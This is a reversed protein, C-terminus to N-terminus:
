AAHPVNWMHPHDGPTVCHGGETKCGYGNGWSEGYVDPDSTIEVGHFTSDMLRGIERVLEEADAADAQAVLEDHVPLLIHDSLGADDIDVLAKALLDRATSQVVYNTAAYARDRDLPLHRGFPTVVEHGGYEASRQLRRGYAKIGPFTADYADAAAKAEAYTIGTQKALTAAGGGYVKGFGVAKFLKRARKKQADTMTSWKAGMVLRATFLHLDEGSAIAAILAPDGSLAALVRMEVQSYDCAVILKGPDAIIARRIKWDGSPLQQLPPNSVSMRATRAALSSVNPHIRDDEDRLELFAQAYTKGWKGARKSRIVADAVPNPDRADIRAWDRDLDAMPLLVDKGVSANGTATKDEWTEGMGELAAIVQATSNVNEVGYRAAIDKYTLAEAALDAVLNETYVTDVRLGRKVQATTILQVRHEFHALKSLGNGKVLTGLEALLRVAYIVDLGAYTVYLPHDIDILAWGTEKTAKYESRFVAYLGKQTDEADPDVYIASLPKLSLGTGGEHEMRPDCLHALIKTDFVRPGLDKLDALGCRDLVLLDFPANHAVWRRDPRALVRRIIGAFRERNIVWAETASGFQVLRCGFLRGFIHLGTTETDLGLVRGVNRLLFDEFGRLDKETEPFYITTEDGSVRRTFTKM